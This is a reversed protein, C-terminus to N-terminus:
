RILHIIGTRKPASSDYTMGKWETGNIMEVDIKWFYVGQPVPTGNFIGDWGEAPRGEDLKTTEWLDQGWKNFISM